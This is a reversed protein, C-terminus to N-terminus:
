ATFVVPDPSILTMFKSMCRSKARACLGSVRVFFTALSDDFERTVNALVAVFSMFTKSSHPQCIGPLSRRFQQMTLTEGNVRSFSQRVNDYIRLTKDTDVGGNSNMAIKDRASLIGMLVLYQLRKIPDTTGKFVLTIRNLLKGFNRSKEKYSRASRSTRHGSRPLHNHELTFASLIM